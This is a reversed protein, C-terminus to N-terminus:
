RKCTQLLSALTERDAAALNDPTLWPEVIGQLREFAARQPGEAAEAQARCLDVLETHLTQYAAASVRRSGRGRVFAEVVATWRQWATRLAADMRAVEEPSLPVREARAAV